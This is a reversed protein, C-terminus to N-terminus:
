STYFAARPNIMAVEILKALLKLAEAHKSSIVNAYFLYDVIPAGLIELHPFHTSENAIVVSSNSDM